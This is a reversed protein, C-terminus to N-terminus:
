TAVRQILVNEAASSAEHSYRAKLPVDYIVAVAMIMIMTFRVAAM